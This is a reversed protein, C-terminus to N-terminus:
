DFNDLYLDLLHLVVRQYVLEEGEEVARGLSLSAVVAQVRGEAAVEALYDGGQGLVFCFLEVAVQQATLEGQQELDCDVEVVLGNAIDEDL